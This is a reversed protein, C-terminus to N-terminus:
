IISQHVNVNFFPYYHSVEKSIRHATKSDKKMTIKTTSSKSKFWDKNALRNVNIQLLRMKLLDQIAEKNKLNHYVFNHIQFLNYKNYIIIITVHFERSLM